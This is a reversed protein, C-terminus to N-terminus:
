RPIFYLKMAKAGYAVRYEPLCEAGASWSNVGGVGAHELDLSLEVHDTKQLESPHRQHKDAGKDAGTKGTFCTEDLQERSYNLASFSIAQDSMIRYGAYEIWRVDTKQGTAQPRVYPYFQDDITQKYTALQAGSNRDCYNEWPGRGYYTLEQQSFPMDARVGFRLMGPIKDADTAYPKFDMALEVVGGPLTTYTMTLKAKVDPMDYINTMISVTEKRDFFKVKGQVSAAQELVLRPEKWVAYKKHLGAGMDNDTVPRWFNPRINELALSAPALGKEPAKYKGTKMQEVQKALAKSLQQRLKTMDGEPVDTAVYNGYSFNSVALQQHAVEYGADLMPEENKTRYSLNVLVEGDPDHMTYPITVEVSQQPQINLAAVDIDGEQAVVGDHMLQWHLEINDLPRFFNENFISIKGKMLDVARTWINQQQYKVEYAQPSPTRDPAFVGNCNFNNDSPDTSDYDGGYYFVGPSVRLAQDAFDWIYGGQYRPYKRILDWYEKFGGSSNGMAHSYECQILPKQKTADAAYKQSAAHSYYMPCFIETNDGEATPHWQIPRSTDNAKIWKFAATFNPGDITENGMSWTIISPHNFHASVNHQNRELIQKAFIDTYAPNVKGNKPPNFGFAHSEQNAEACVYIGYEDCLDYWLPDNPYHSTRVANFNFQKMRRIDSIMRERSMVYGGDPDIEHRDVGKILIPKGNVTLQGNLMKVTRFGVRQTLVEAVPLEDAMITQEQKAATKKAKAKGSATKDSLPSVTATLRYLYPTEASWLKPNDIRIDTQVLSTGAPSEATANAVVQGSADTLAYAIRAKGTVTADIHLLGDADATLRLNDVHTVADRAYLYSSRAVGTLRWADQDECYSGDCWRYVQMTVQNVGARIYPTVDFEAAVKSDEAYGVFQGNVWVYVCPSVAGLHMIVQKTIKKEAKKQKSSKVTQCWEGPIIINRRYIGVHNKAMPPLPPNSKYQGHWTFGMNVYVPVGYTDSQKRQHPRRGDPSTQLEWMGPVTMYGWNKDDFDPSTYNAPLSDTANETWYFRWQGDISLYRSSAASSHHSAEASEFPFATTHLTLRNLDNVNLDKWETMTQGM